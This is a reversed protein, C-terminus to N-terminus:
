FARKPLTVKWYFGLPNSASVTPIVLSLIDWSCSQFDLSGSPPTPDAHHFYLLSTLSTSVSHAFPLFPLHSWFPLFSPSIMPRLLIVDSLLIPLRPLTKPSFKMTHNQDEKSRLQRTFFLGQNLSHPLLSVLQFAVAISWALCLSCQVLINLNPIYKVIHEKSFDM